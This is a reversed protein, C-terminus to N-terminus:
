KEINKKIIIQLVKFDNCSSYKWELSLYIHTLDTIMDSATKRLMRIMGSHNGQPVGTEEVLLFAETTLNSIPLM